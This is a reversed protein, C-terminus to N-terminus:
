LLMTCTSTSMQIKSSKVYAKITVKRNRTRDDPWERLDRHFRVSCTGTAWRFSCATSWEVARKDMQGHAVGFWNFLILGRVDIRRNQNCFLPNHRCQTGYNPYWWCQVVSTRINLFLYYLIILLFWKVVGFSSQLLHVLFAVAFRFWLFHNWGSLAEYVQLGHRM